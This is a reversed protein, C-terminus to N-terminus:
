KDPRSKEPVEPAYERVSWYHGPNCFGKEVGESSFHRRNEREWHGVPLM